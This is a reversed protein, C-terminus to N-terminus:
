LNLSCFPLVTKAILMGPNDLRGVDHGGENSESNDIGDFGALLFLRFPKKM